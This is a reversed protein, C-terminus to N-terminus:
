LESGEILYDITNMSDMDLDDMLNSVRLIEEKLERKGLKLSKNLIKIFKEISETLEKLRSEVLEFAREGMKKDAIQREKETGLRLDIRWALEQALEDDNDDAVRELMETPSTELALSADDFITKKTSKLSTEINKLKQELEGVIYQVDRIMEPKNEETARLLSEGFDTHSDEGMFENLRDGLWEAWKERLVEDYPDNETDDLRKAIEQSLPSGDLSERILEDDSFSSFKTTWNRTMGSYSTENQIFEAPNNRPKLENAENVILFMRKKLNTENRIAENV